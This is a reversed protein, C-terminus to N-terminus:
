QQAPHGFEEKEQNGTRSHNISQRVLLTIVVVDCCAWLVAYCYHDADKIDCLSGCECAEVVLSYTMYIYGRNIEHPIASYCLGSRGQTGIYLKNKEWAPSGLASGRASGSKRERSPRWDRM